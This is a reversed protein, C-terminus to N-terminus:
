GNTLLSLTRSRRCESSRAVKNPKQKKAQLVSASRRVILILDGVRLDFLGLFGRMRIRLGGSSAAEATLDGSDDVRETQLESGPAGDQALNPEAPQSVKAGESSLGPPQEPQLFLILARAQAYLTAQANGISGQM